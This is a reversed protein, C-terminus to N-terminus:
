YRIRSFGASNNSTSGNGTAYLGIMTGTFRGAAPSGLFAGDADQQLWILDSESGGYGFSYWRGSSKIRLTVRKRDYPVQAIIRDDM